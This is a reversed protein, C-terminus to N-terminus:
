LIEDFLDSAKLKDRETLHSYTNLTQKIDGHGLHEQIIKFNVNKSIM